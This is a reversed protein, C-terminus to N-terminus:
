RLASSSPPSTDTSPPSTTTSISPADPETKTVAFLEDGTAEDGFRAVLRLRGAAVGGRLFDELAVRGAGELAADHVVLYSVPIAELLDLFREPVPRSQSMEEVGQVIPPRFGSVGNVLPREHDAARLTYLYNAHGVGSPLEVVGGKMVTEKLRLTVPDPDVDGRVVALPAERQEFLLLAIILAFATAKLARARGAALREVARSAGLGALLSLGVFCVMAWRAPVRISQFLPVYRFLMRHFFFNMGFSGAFGVLVWILGVGVAESPRCARLSAKLSSPRFLRLLGPPALACRVVLAAAGLALARWPGSVHFLEVGFLHPRLNGYGVAVLAVFAATLALADLAHALWSRHGQRADGAAAGGQRAGGLLLAALALLVPLLGPFLALETTYTSVSGGLGTWFKNQWDVTLWNIFHASFFRAEEPGRVLGYLKSVRLYPILFPLLAASAVGLAVGARVWFDRERWRRQRAVLFLGTLMLPILTLVFWHVCTLANMFFAVGLWAARRRTPARVYLVLAELLLPIWGAFLYTIHPLHHFRYPVFAFAVGAVWAAGRSATLTRTLRFAGYGCLAFGALTAIGHVTLPKLGAAYLPFFFLAIGYNHESFALTYRYPYLINADFLHLPDHFTQHYDWWMIWANLYSDGTDGVADRLHRAWPWTMLVTLAVFALFIFSEGAPKRLRM